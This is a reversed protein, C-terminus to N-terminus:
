EVEEDQSTTEELPQISQLQISQLNLVQEETPYEAYLDDIKDVYSRFTDNDTIESGLENLADKIQGKTEDLYNLKDITAM